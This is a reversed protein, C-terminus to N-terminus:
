AAGILEAISWVHDTIGAEMAPTVRLTRHVRCFNYYAFHLACAAKLNDLKKSFANTLRTFRRMMMRMTLNQREVHSTCIHEEDPDGQMTKSIVELIPSPSYKTASDHQGYDGYLKVLQAFDVDADFAREIANVYFRFGDTTIQVRNALRGALDDIFTQTTAASRKGVTFSPVLKTEPDIAVFVWADGFEAPDEKRCRKQKKNVFCWIEDSQIFNSKIGHMRTDMVKACREGALALLSLITDRHLDTLRETSRVSCGEILCQIAKLGTEESIRMTGLTSVPAPDSFTTSCSTCRYRQIRQRGYRGFKKVTSHQCKLCTM